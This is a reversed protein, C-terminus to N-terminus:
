NNQFGPCLFVSYRRKFDITDFSVNYSKPQIVDFVQGAVGKEKRCANDKENRGYLTCGRSLREVVTQGSGGRCIDSSNNKNNAAAQEQAGPLCRRGTGASGRRRRREVRLLWGRRPSLDRETRTEEPEHRANERTAKGLTGQRGAFGQRCWLVPVDAGATERLENGGPVPRRGGRDTGVARNQHLRDDRQEAPIDTQELPAKGPVQPQDRREPGPDHAGGAGPKPDKRDDGHNGSQNPEPLIGRGGPPRM